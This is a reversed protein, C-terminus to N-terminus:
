HITDVIIAEVAYLKISTISYFFSLLSFGFLRAGTNIRQRCNDCLPETIFFIFRQRRYATAPSLACDFPLAQPDVFLFFILFPSFSGFSFFVSLTSNMSNNSTSNRGDFRRLSQAGGDLTFLDIHSRGFINSASTKHLDPHLACRSPFTPLLKYVLCHFALM